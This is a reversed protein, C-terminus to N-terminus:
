RERFHARGLDQVTPANSGQLSLGAAGGGGAGGGPGFTGYLALNGHSDFAVGVAIQYSFIGLTGQGSLGVQLTAGSSAPTCENNNEPKASVVIDDARFGSDSIQIGNFYGFDGPSSPGANIDFSLERFRKGTVVIDGDNDYLTSTTILIDGSDQIDKDRTGNRLGSPDTSNVPDGGVYNYWNMGDGYGIPDTQMFRGLTASYFRAKYYYLGLESLWAQGTYQFRGLNNKGPIGYEDM